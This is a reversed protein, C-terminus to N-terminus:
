IDDDELFGKVAEPCDDDNVLEPEDGWEYHNDEDLLSRLLGFNWNRPGKAMEYGILKFQCIWPQDYDEAKDTFYRENKILFPCKKCDISNCKERIAALYSGNLFYITADIPSDDPCNKLKADSILRKIMRKDEVDKIIQYVRAKSIGAEEAIKNVDVKRKWMHYIDRDRKSYNLNM